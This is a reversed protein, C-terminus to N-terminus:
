SSFSWLMISVRQKFFTTIKKWAIKLKTSDLFIIFTQLLKARFYPFKCFIEWNKPLGPILIRSSFKEISKCYVEWRTKLVGKLIKQRLKVSRRATPWKEINKMVSRLIILLERWFNQLVGRLINASYRCTSKCFIKKLFVIKSTGSM